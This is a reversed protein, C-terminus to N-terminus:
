DRAARRHQSGRICTGRRHRLGTATRASAARSLAKFQEPVVMAVHCAQGCPRASDVQHCPALRPSALAIPRRSADRNALHRNPQAVCWRRGKLVSDDEDVRGYYCRDADCRAAVCREACAPRIAARLTYGSTLTSLLLMM